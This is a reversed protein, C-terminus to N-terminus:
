FGGRLQFVLDRADYEKYLCVADLLEDFLADRIAGERVVIESVSGTGLSPGFIESMGMRDTDTGKLISFPEGTPMGEDDLTGIESEM